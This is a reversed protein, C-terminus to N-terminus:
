TGKRGHHFHQQNPKHYNPTQTKNITSSVPNLLSCSEVELLSTVVWLVTRARWKKAFSESSSSKVSQNGIKNRGRGLTGAGRDAFSSKVFLLWCNANLFRFQQQQNSNRFKLCSKVIGLPVPIKNKAFKSKRFNRARTMPFKEAARMQRANQQRNVNPACNGIFYCQDRGKRLKCNVLQKVM